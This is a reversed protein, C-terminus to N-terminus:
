SADVTSPGPVDYQWEVAGDIARFGIAENVAIMHANVDANFTNIFQLRSEAARVQRLNALKVLMGLRHGRHEPDVITTGQWAHHNEDIDFVLMTWAVLRGSDDHRVGVHYTRQGRRERMADLAHIRGADYKEAEIKLDGIPADIVMRGELYAVDAAVDDPTRGSWSVLSYGPSSRRADGELKDWLDEDVTDLDLRRRVDTLAPQAGMAAAFAAPAPDRPPGGAIDAWYGGLLLSRGRERVFEVAAHFMERGIGCRRHSPHVTLEVWVTHLNDLLPLDYQLCAVAEGARRVLLDIRESAPNPYRIANATQARLVPPVDPNDAAMATALISHYADISAEHAPDLPELQIRM